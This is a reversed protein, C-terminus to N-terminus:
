PAWPPSGPQREWYAGGSSPSFITRTTGNPNYAGFLNNDPDYVRIVGGADIKTPLGESQSRQLLQSGANAYDDPCNAGVDAGHRAFHDELTDPNGWTDGASLGGADEAAIVNQLRTRTPGRLATPRLRGVTTASSVSAARTTSTSASPHAAALLNAPADYDFLSAQPATGPATMTPAALVLGVVAILATALILRVRM